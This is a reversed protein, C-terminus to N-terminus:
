KFKRHKILWHGASAPDDDLLKLLEAELPSLAAAARVMFSLQRRDRNVNLEAPVFATDSQIDITYRPERGGLPIRLRFPGDGFKGSYRSHGNVRVHLRLPDAQRGALGSLRHDGQIVFSDAEAKDPNDILLQWRPPAWDDDYRNSEGIRLKGGLADFRKLRELLWVPGEPLHHAIFQILWHNSVAGYHKLGTRIIEPLGVTFYQKISKSDEHLRSNALLQDVYGLQYRKAIRIWLEYDMCFHLSEDIPGAEDLVSRRIFAAPQCITCVDFLRRRDVNREVPYPRITQNNKDTFNAKGYVIGYEPHRDLAAVARSIAHPLYTDDSNLWGILPGKALALGKNLANSQGKDKESFFRFRSGYKSASERLIDVTGDRSGGDMVILEVHPYDQSMVSEITERIFGGQQFSPTIVSVLPRKRTREDDRSM